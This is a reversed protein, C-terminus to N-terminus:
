FGEPETLSYMSHEEDLAITFGEEGVRRVTPSVVEGMRYLRELVSQPLLPYEECEMLIDAADERVHLASYVSQMVEATTYEISAMMGDEIRIVEGWIISRATVGGILECLTEHDYEFEPHFRECQEAKRRAIAALKHQGMEEFLEALAHRPEPDRPNALIEERLQRRRERRRQLENM